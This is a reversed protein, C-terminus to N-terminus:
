QRIEGEAIDKLWVVFDLTQKTIMRYDEVSLETLFQVLDSNDKKFGFHKLFRELHKLLHKWAKGESNRKTAKKKAFVVTALLGNHAIMSPTKRVYTLYKDKYRKDKIGVVLTYAFNAMEQIRGKLRSM